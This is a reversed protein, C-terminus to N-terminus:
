YEINGKIKKVQTFRNSLLTKRICSSADAVATASILLQPLLVYIVEVPRKMSDAVIEEKEIGSLIQYVQDFFCVFNKGLFNNVILNFIMGPSPPSQAWEGLLTVKYTKTSSKAALIIKYPLREVWLAQLELICWKM